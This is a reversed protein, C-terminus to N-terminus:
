YAAEAWIYVKPLSMALMLFKLWAAEVFGVRERRWISSCGLGWQTPREMWGNLSLLTRDLELSSMRGVGQSRTCHVRRCASMCM